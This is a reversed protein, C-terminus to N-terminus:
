KTKSSHKVKLSLEELQKDNVESPAATLLCSASQVKPFAIVQRLSNAGTLMMVLRDLGLAIGGHPPAGMSLAQLLFGFQDDMEEDTMGLLSLAKRQSAETHNRISGGGLEVGNYVIDYALARAMEPEVSLLHEDAPNVSTFPHNAFHIEGSEPDKELLPWDIVWVLKDLAENILNLKHGLHLRLRGLVDHVLEDKDAIFFVTSGAKAGALEKILKLEDASFFKSIPSTGLEDDGERYSIWALGKAGYESITLNRLDDFEKRSWDATKPVCIGKVIGGAKVVKAFSEFGSNSMLESFDILELGFRLDPKDSGYKSIAEKHSIRPIPFSISKDVSEFACKLLGEAVSIVSDVEAFSMEIDVQTFEPQRDARLDEDRFCRAIQYYKEFGSAMLLQKFLQPSQPLAFFKGSQVRSPVLYDRAGEPTSRTLIPTEIELFDEKALFDRIACTISNRARIRKQMEERRLDLFRHKLKFSEDTQEFDEIPLPLPKSTNLIDVEEPCLEVAGSRLDRNETGDPRTRIKGKVQVVYEPRLNEFTKHVEPNVQPDSVLQVKGTHDRLEIFILGGLDRRVDVWGALTINIGEDAQSLTGCFHTRYNM